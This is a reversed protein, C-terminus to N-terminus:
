PITDRKMNEITREVLTRAGGGSQYPMTMFQITAAAPGEFAWKCEDFSNDILSVPGTGSFVIRCRKFTCRVYENSDLNITQGILTSQEMRM